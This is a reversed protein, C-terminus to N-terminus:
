AAKRKKDHKRNDAIATSIAINFQYIDIQQVTNHDCLAIRAAVVILAGTTMVIPVPVCCYGSVRRLQECTVTQPMHMRVCYLVITDVFAVTPVIFISPRGQQGGFLASVLM